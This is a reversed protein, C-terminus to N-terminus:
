DVPAFRRCRHQVSLAALIPCGNGTTIGGGPGAVAEHLTAESQINYDSLTKRGDKLQKGAFTHRYGKQELILSKVKDITDSAKVDLTITKGTETKVFIQMSAVADTRFFETLAAM